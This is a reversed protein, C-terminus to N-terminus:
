QRPNVTGVQLKEVLPYAYLVKVTWAFPLYSSLHGVLPNGRSGQLESFQPKCVLGEVGVLSEQVCHKTCV